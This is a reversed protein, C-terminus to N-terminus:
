GLQRLLATALLSKDSCVGAQEFLTEYPYLMTETGTQALINEAKADDYKIAQVFALTLDVIQDDSLHHAKGLDRLDNALTAISDDAQNVTLFMGYYQEQWNSNLEGAYSFAKPSSKYYEYTSQYLKETLSYKVGKYEWAFVRSVPDQLQPFTKVSEEKPTIQTEVKSSLEQLKPIIQSPAHLDNKQYVYSLLGVIIALEIFVIGIKKLWSILM